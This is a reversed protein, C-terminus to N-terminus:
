AGLRKYAGPISDKTELSKENGEYLAIQASPSDACYYPCSDDGENYCEYFDVLWVQSNDDRILVRTGSKWGPDGTNCEKNEMLWSGEKYEILAQQTYGVRNPVVRRDFFINLPLNERLLKEIEDEDREFYAIGVTSAEAMSQPNPNIHLLLPVKNDNAFRKFDEITFVSFFARDWEHCWKIYGARQKANM